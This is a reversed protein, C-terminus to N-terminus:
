ANRKRRNFVPNDPHFWLTYKNFCVGWWFHFPTM